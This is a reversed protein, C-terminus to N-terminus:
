SKGKSMVLVIDARSIYGISPLGERHITKPAIQVQLPSHPIENHVAFIM